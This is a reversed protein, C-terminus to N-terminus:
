ARKSMNERRNYKCSEHRAVNKHVYIGHKIRVDHKNMAKIKIYHNIMNEQKISTKCAAKTLSM